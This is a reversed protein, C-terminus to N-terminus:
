ESIGLEKILEERIFAINAVIEGRDDPEEGEKKNLNRTRTDASQVAKEFVSAVISPDMTMIKKTVKDISPLFVSDLYDRSFIQNDFRALSYSVSAAIQLLEAKTGLTAEGLVAGTTREDEQKSLQKLNAKL